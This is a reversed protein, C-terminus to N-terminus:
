EQRLRDIDQRVRLLEEEEVAEDELDQEEWDQVHVHEPDADGQIVQIPSPPSQHPAGGNTQTSSAGGGNHSSGSATTSM